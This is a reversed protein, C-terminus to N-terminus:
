TRSPPRQTGFHAPPLESLSFFVAKGAARMRETEADAGVSRGGVRLCADCRDALALSLPMMIEDFREQGAAAIVPLTLNVGILPIHGLRFVESAIQNLAELNRAREPEGAAGSTYPGAILVWL